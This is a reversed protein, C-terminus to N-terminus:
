VLHRGHTQPSRDLWRERWHSYGKSLSRSRRVVFEGHGSHLIYDARHDRCSRRSSSLRCHRSSRTSGAASQAIATIFPSYRTAFLTYPTSHLTYSKTMALPLSAIWSSTTISVGHISQARKPIELQIAESGSAIVISFFKAEGWGKGRGRSPLPFYSLTAIM